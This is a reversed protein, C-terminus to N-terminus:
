KLIAARHFTFVFNKIQPPPIDDRTLVSPLFSRSINKMGNFIIVRDITSEVRNEYFLLMCPAQIGFRYFVM